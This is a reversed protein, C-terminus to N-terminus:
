DQYDPYLREVLRLLADWALNPQGDLSFDDGANGRFQRATHECFGPIGLAGAL